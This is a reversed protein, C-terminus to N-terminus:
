EGINYKYFSSIINQAEKKLLQNVFLINGSNFGRTLSLRLIKICDDSIALWFDKNTKEQVCKKCVLGGKKYSFYNNNPTIVEHCIVCYYLCPSVGYLVMFKLLFLYYSMEVGNNVTKTKNLTNLFNDLLIFYDNVNDTIEGKIHKEIVNIALGAYYVKTLDNKIDSYYNEGIANGIYGTNKGSIVMIASLTMPELHGAMKSNLKKAGRAVLDMKGYHKSLVSVRIDNEGYDVRKLIISQITWTGKM